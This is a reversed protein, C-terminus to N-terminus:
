SPWVPLGKIHWGAIAHASRYTPYHVTKTSAKVWKGTKWHYTLKKGTYTHGSGNREAYQYTM